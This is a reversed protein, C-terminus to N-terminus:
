GTSQHNGSLEALQRYCQCLYRINGHFDGSTFGCRRASVFQGVLLLQYGGCWKRGGSSEHCRAPNSADFELEAGVLLYSELATELMDRATLGGSGALSQGGAGRHPVVGALWAGATNAREPLMGLTAGTARALANALYHLQAYDPHQVSINGLFIAAREGDRLADAIRQHRDEPGPGPGGEPKNDMAGLDAGAASAVYFLESVMGDYRTAINEAADFHLPFHRPNIFSIAAGKLASKRLRLAAIPQDKRINSGVLLAADLTELDNLGMGLWPMTPASDQASFSLQGLRHDINNSGLERGLKQALYM